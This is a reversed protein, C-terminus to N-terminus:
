ANEPVMDIAEPFPDMPEQPANASCGV